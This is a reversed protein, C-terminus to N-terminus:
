SSRLLDFRRVGRNGVTYTWLHVGATDGTHKELIALAKRGTVGCAQAAAKALAMQGGEFGDDILHAIKIAVRYDEVEAATRYDRSDEPDVLRVSALREQYSIGSGDAYAFTVEDPSDARSKLKTFRVAKDGDDTPTDTQEAVYVADFDELIDTTGTYRPTGDANPNKTTHGLALITGGDLVYQRCAEAFESSLRKDNLPTFKKLTDIIICSQNAVGLSATSMLLDKLDRSKFGRQGPAIIHAGLDQLLRLKEALGKSSDDANVYYLNNAEIRGESIAEDVLHLAILTKGTNPAAYVMTAQGKMVLPGLLPKTDQARAEYENAQGKLSFRLLPHQPVLARSPESSQSRIIDTALSLPTPVSPESPDPAPSAPGVAEGSPAAEAPDTIPTSALPEDTPPVTFDRIIIPESPLSQDHEVTM